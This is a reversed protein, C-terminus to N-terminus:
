YRRLEQSSVGGDNLILILRLLNATTNQLERILLRDPAPKHECGPIPLESGDEVGIKEIISHLDDAARCAMLRRGRYNQLMRQKDDYSLTM